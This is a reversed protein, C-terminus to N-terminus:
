GRKRLTGLSFLGLLGALLLTAWQSLTPIAAVVGAGVPVAPGGPDTIERNAVLDDDGAGGDTLTLTITNGAIQAGGFAYWHPTPNAQTRGYKYYVTGPPLAQPYTLVVTATSGSSGQLLRLSVLGHPLEVGPPPAIGISATTQTAAEALLWDTNGPLALQLPQGTQPGEPLTLDQGTLPEFGATVTRAATVGSLTCVSSTGSCDGSWGTFRYGENATATCNANSDHAVPNPACVASGGAAPDASATLPYTNLTFQATVSRAGTVNALTCADSGSCDGSWGTFTYGANATAVCTASNGHSVSAPTCVASGGTSPTATATVPYQPPPVVGFSASVTCAGTIPGTTYTSGNLSGSCGSASAIQYGNAPTLTFSTTQDYTVAQPTAPSIAGNAGASPTVPYQRTAACQANTGGHLGTCSWTFAASGDSVATATGASCLGSAPATLTATAHAPGCVGAVPPPVDVTHVTGTTFGGTIAQNTGTSEIGTDSSNLDLRLSGTGNIATVPVTWIVGDTSAPTGLTGSATDTATLTFDSADVGSVAESFTVVFTVSASSAPPTGQPAISSVSPGAGPAASAVVNGLFDGWIMYLSTGAAAPITKTVADTAVDIVHVTGNSMVAYLAADNASIGLGSITNSSDPLGSLGLTSQENTDATDIIHLLGGTRGVYLKSGDKRVAISGSQGSHGTVTIPTVTNDALDIRYVGVSVAAAAYLTGAGTPDYALSYYTGNPLTAIDSFTNSATDLRRIQGARCLLYLSAGDASIASSIASSIAGSCATLSDDVQKTDSDVVHVKGGSYDSVYATAGDASFTIAVSGGTGEVVAKLSNDTSDIVGVKGSGSYQGFWAENSSGPRLAATYIFGTLSADLDSPELTDVLEGSATDIVSLTRSTSNPIYAYEAASATGAIFALAAALSVRQLLRLTM